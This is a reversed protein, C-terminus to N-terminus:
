QEISLYENAKKLIIKRVKLEIESLDFFHEESNNICYKVIARVNSSMRSELMLKESNKKFKHHKFMRVFINSREYEYRALEEKCIDKIKEGRKCFKRGSAMRKFEEADQKSIIKLLEKEETLIEKTEKM